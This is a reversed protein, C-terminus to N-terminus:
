IEEVDRIEAPFVELLAQVGADAMARERLASKREGDDPAGATEAGPSVPKAGEAGTDPRSRVPAAAPEAQTCGVAIRRGAVQQAVGELWPRNQEFTDRLTRQNSSFSFTVRDDLVEIRQAQAVVMNYFVAKSRRVEALLADKLAPGSLGAASAGAPATPAAPAPAGAAAAAPRSLAPPASRPPMAAAPREVPRAPAAPARSSQPTPAQPGGALRQPARSGADVPPGGASPMPATGAILDEIAVLKRLHIWRLLAIELHYRPQAASRIDMEARTLVDFARLLDERSFRGALTKLRDREGEGAIEPDSIRSADVSILLLDRVVRSLERCVARLDYGLEVARGALEFAAPAQEDAVAEVVDLLLDRGV